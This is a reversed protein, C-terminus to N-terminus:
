RQMTKQLRLMAAKLAGDDRTAHNAADRTGSKMEAVITKAEASSKGQAMLAREITRENPIPKPLPANATVAGAELKRDALGKEIAKAVNFMSGRGRAKDMWALAEKETAGSRASYITAMASDMEELSELADQLEYSNGAAIASARHVMIFSGLALNIEDGAMAIVSAASGALAVVNVTVKARHARLLNYIALGTILNGGPSNINVTVDKDGIKRLAAGIRQETNQPGDDWTRGINGYISITNEADDNTARVTPVFQESAYEDPEFTLADLHRFATIEPLQRLSM